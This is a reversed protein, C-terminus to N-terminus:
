PPTGDDYGIAEPRGRVRIACDGVRAVRTRVNVDAVLDVTASAAAEATSFLCEQDGVRLRVARRGVPEAHLALTSRLRGASAAPSAAPVDLGALRVSGGVPHREGARAAREAPTWEAATEDHEILFPSTPSLAEPRALRWRVVAGDPRQREGDIPGVWAGAPGWRMVDDLGVVAIAWTVLGGGRELADLVPRGLWSAGALDRDFVAVLELYSDGLWILRNLTGLGDHRGGDTAALGLKSELAAATADPDATAIVVHDIGLIM